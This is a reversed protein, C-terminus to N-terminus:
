LESLVIKEAKEAAAAAATKVPAFGLRGTTDFITYYKRIFVDGLIYLPGRPAPIDIGTMGFLCMGGVNLVYDAGTLVFAAGGINISLDPLTPILTCNITYESPRLPFPTAGVAAAMAAVESSPGALISTGTDLIAKTATTVSKGGLQMDDLAVEWYTESTVPVWTINGTFHNEDYGGLVLEGESGSTASLFFAFMPSQVLGQNEMSFYVPAIDDVSIASFAMGLIGDFHGLMYALGLGKVVNIEAFEQGKVILGGVNVSDESLFGSVPGSGYHIIFETGNKVYTSSKTSDYKPHSGCATGCSLSPIWLNSSGTDFIVNFAQGPTGVIIEGFYQANSFDNIVVPVGDAGTVEHWPGSLHRHKNVGAFDLVTDMPTRKNLKVRQMANTTSPVCLALIAAAAVFLLSVRM